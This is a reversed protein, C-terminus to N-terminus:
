ERRVLIGHDANALGLLFPWENSARIRGECFHTESREVGRQSELAFIISVFLSEDGLAKREGGLGRQSLLNIIDIFKEVVLKRLFLQLDLELARTDKLLLLHGDIAMGKVCAAFVGLMSAIFDGHVVNVGFEGAEFARFQGETCAKDFGLRSDRSAFGLLLAESVEVAGIALEVCLVDAAGLQGFAFGFCDLTCGNLAAFGNGVGKGTDFDAGGSVVVDIGEVDGFYRM